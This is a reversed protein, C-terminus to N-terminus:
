SKKSENVCVARKPHYFIKYFLKVMVKSSDTIESEKSHLFALRKFLPKSELKAREWDHKLLYSVCLSFQEAQKHKDKEVSSILALINNDKEDTPNLNLRFQNKLESLKLADELEIAKHVELALERIKDRWKAREKTINDIAIKREANWLTVYATVLGGIFTLLLKIEM